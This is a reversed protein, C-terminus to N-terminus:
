FRRQKAGFTRTKGFGNKKFNRGEGNLRDPVVLVYRRPEDGESKTTVGPYDTLASHVARREFPNMPELKIVKNYKIAKEATRVALRGLTDVRKIRYNEADVVLKKETPAKRTAVLLALYQIADLTEGRYGIVQATDEGSLDIRCTDEDVTVESEVNLQMKAILENIFSFAIDEALPKTTIKVEAKKFLGAESIVEIDAQDKNVGLQELGEAVAQEVSNSKITVSKM